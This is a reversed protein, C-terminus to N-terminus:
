DTLVDAVIDGEERLAHISIKMPRRRSNESRTARRASPTSLFKSGDRFEVLVDTARRASPTSLFESWLAFEREAQTARRASPTSLFLYRGIVKKQGKLRGGRPPRPYFDAEVNATQGNFRTARRASPTSLFRCMAPECPHIRRRGGRPPRPYFNRPRSSGSAATLDGEERLAHISISSALYSQDLQPDGEERLAHISIRLDGANLHPPM